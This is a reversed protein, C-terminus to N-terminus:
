DENKDEDKNDDEYEDEEEDKSFLSELDDEWANQQRSKAQFFRSELKFNELTPKKCPKKVKMEEMTDILSLPVNDKIDQITNLALETKWSDNKRVREKRAWWNNSFASQFLKYKTEGTETEAEERNVNLNHDITTIMAKFIMSKHSLFNAKPAYYNHLSKINELIGTHQFEDLM